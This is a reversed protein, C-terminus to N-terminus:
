ILRVIKPRGRRGDPAPGPSRGIRGHFGLAPVASLPQPNVEALLLAVGHRQLSRHLERLADLGSTDIAILRHMDLVLARCGEPLPEPLPEVHAALALIVTLALAHVIGAVPSTAGARACETAGLLAVTLTPIVLLRVGSWSFEPPALRPLHQPIAGFRKGM